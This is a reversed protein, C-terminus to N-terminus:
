NSDTLEQIIKSVEGPKVVVNFHYKKQNAVFTVVHKGPRLPIRDRPAIPTTKNMDKGDVFVKAWPKTNAVLFGDEGTTVPEQKVPEKAAPEKMLAEHGTPTKTGSGSALRIDLNQDYGNDDDFSVYKVINSFGHKRVVVRIQQGPSLDEVKVPSKGQSKGDVSIDAGPPDTNVILKGRAEELDVQQELEKGAEVQVKLTRERRGAKSVRIEHPGAAVLYGKQVDKDSVLRGDISVLVGELPLKLKITGSGQGSTRAPEGQSPSLQVTVQTPEGPSVNVVQQADGDEARVRIRHPGRPVERLLASGGPQVKAVVKGDLSVEAARPPLVTLIITGKSPTLMFKVGLVAAVVTVAVLVGVLIDKWLASSGTGRRVENQPPYPGQFVGAAGQYNGPPLMVMGTGGGPMQVAMFAGTGYPANMPTMGAFNPPLVVMGTSARPDQMQMQQMQQMQMQQMQMPTPQGSPPGYHPQPQAAPNQVPTPPAPAMGQTFVVTPSATIEGPQAEQQGPDEGELIRTSENVLDAPHAEQPKDAGMSIATKEGTDDLPDDGQMDGLDVDGLDADSVNTEIDGFESTPKAKEPVPPPAPSAPAASSPGSLLGPRSAVPVGTSLTPPRLRISPPAGGRGQSLAAMAERGIRRQEELIQAERRMEANFQERMWGALPKANYVPEETVLFNLLAEQMESAWQYRDEVEKALAKMIIQDLVPPVEPNLTSPPPVDVNRVKELTAFDSEGLFLRENTLIEYLITGISFIDSRRDLPMGRVHEPSMYGFKGKLVGAQTKSSRSAAKAIGFDIVKCEGEYSVLINQPSVDRHIIGLPRGTADKKRHAYDLGECVKSAVHAAMNPPMTKRMRRFRNQIQLLDKGWIYEMAIFHSDEIRGLEFTQCINAHNLQGCIKAEDIFMQIFDADEAMSPLIRKIALIKEFGEVGFAKAKFVEAMGGVSIRELLLYKGFPLPQRM